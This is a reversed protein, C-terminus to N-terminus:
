PVPAREIFLNRRKRRRRHIRRVNYNFFSRRPVPRPGSAPSISHSAGFRDASDRAHRKRRNRERWEKNRPVRSSTGPESETESQARRVDECFCISLESTPEREFAFARACVWEPPWRRRTLLPHRSLLSSTQDIFIRLGSLMEKSGEVEAPSRLDSLFPSEEPEHGVRLSYAADHTKNQASDITMLRVFGGTPWRRTCSIVSQKSRGCVCRGPYWSM